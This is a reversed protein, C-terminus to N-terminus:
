KEYGKEALFATVHEALVQWRDYGLCLAQVASDETTLKTPHELKDSPPGLQVGLTKLGGLLGRVFRRCQNPHPTVVALSDIGGMVAACAGVYRLLGYRLMHRALKRRHDRSPELIDLLGAHLGLLATFGSEECLVRRIQQLSMGTSHMQPVVTPDIDGCATSSIVGEVGM